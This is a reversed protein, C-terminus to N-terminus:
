AVTKKFSKLLDDVTNHELFILVEDFTMGVRGIVEVGFPYVSPDEYVIMECFKDTDFGDIGSNEALGKSFKKPLFVDDTWRKGNLFTTPHPPAPIFSSNKDSKQSYYDIVFPLANLIQDIDKDKLKMWKKFADQKKVKVPYKEWFIDFAAEKKDKVIHDSKPDNSGNQGIKNKTIYIYTDNKENQSNDNENQSNGNKENQSNGVFFDDNLILERSKMKGINSIAQMKYLRSISCDVSHVGINLLKAITENKAFCSGTKSSLGEIAGCIIKQIPSLNSQVVRSPIIVFFSEEVESM